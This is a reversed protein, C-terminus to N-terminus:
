HFNLLKEEDIPTCLVDQHPPHTARKLSWSIVGKDPMIPSLTRPLMASQDVTLTPVIAIEQSKWVKINNPAEAPTGLRVHPLLPGVPQDSLHRLDQSLVKTWEVLTTKGTLLKVHKKLTGNEREILWAAKLHYPLHFSWAIDHEKAQDQM